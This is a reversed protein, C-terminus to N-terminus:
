AEWKWFEPFAFLMLTIVVWACLFGTWFNAESMLTGVLFAAVFGSFLLIGVFKFMGRLVGRIFESM